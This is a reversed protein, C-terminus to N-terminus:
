VASLFLHWKERWEQQEGLGKGHLRVQCRRGHHHGGSAETLGNLERFEHFVTWPNVPNKWYWKLSNFWCTSLFIFLWCYTPLALSPLPAPYIEIQTPHAALESGVYQLFRFTVERHKWTQTQQDAHSPSIWLSHNGLTFPETAGMVTKRKSILYSTWPSSYVKEKSESKQLIHGVSSSTQLAWTKSM